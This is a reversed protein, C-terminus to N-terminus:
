KPQTLRPQTRLLQVHDNKTQVTYHGCKVNVENYQVHDHHSQETQTRQSYSNKRSGQNEMRPGKCWCLHPNTGHGVGHSCPLERCMGEGEELVTTEWKSRWQQQTRFLVVNALVWLIANRRKPPWLQFQPHLIWDDPIQPPTTRPM